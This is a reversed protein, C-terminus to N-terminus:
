APKKRWANGYYRDTAPDYYAVQLTTALHMAVVRDVAILGRDALWSRVVTEDSNKVLGELSCLDPRDTWPPQESPPVSVNGNDLNPKPSELMSVDSM